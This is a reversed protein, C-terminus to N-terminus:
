SVILGVACGHVTRNWTCSMLPRTTMCQWMRFCSSAPAIVHNFTGPPGSSPSTVFGGAVGNVHLASPVIAGGDGDGDNPLVWVADGPTFGADAAGVGSSVGRGVGAIPPPAAVGGGVGSDVGRGDGAVPPSAAVDGGVGSDVGRGVGAVPPSAAVGRGDGAIPPPAAVGCVVGKAVGGGGGAPPSLGAPAGVTLGADGCGVGAGVVGGAVTRSVVRDADGDNAGCAAYMAVGTPTHLTLQPSQHCFVM